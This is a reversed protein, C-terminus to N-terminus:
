KTKSWTNRRGDAILAKQCKKCTVQSTKQTLNKSVMDLSCLPHSSYYEWHLIKKSQKKYVPRYNIIYSSCKGACPYNIKMLNMELESIRYKCERCEYYDIKYTEIM